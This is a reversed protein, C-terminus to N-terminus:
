HLLREFRFHMENRDIVNVFVCMCKRNTGHPRCRHLCIIKVQSDTM